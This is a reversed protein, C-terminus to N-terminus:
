NSSFNNRYIWIVISEMECIWCHMMCIDWLAGNQLLFTCVNRDCFTANHSIPSTSQPIKIIPRYTKTTEPLSKRTKSIQKMKYWEGGAAPDKWLGFSGRWCCLFPALEAQGLRTWGLHTYHPHRKRKPPPLPPLCSWHKSVPGWKLIFAVKSTTFIETM